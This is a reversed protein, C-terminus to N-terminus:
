HLLDATWTQWLGCKSLVLRRAVQQVNYVEYPGLRVADEGFAHATMYNRLYSCAHIADPLSLKIDRVNQADSHSSKQFRKPQIEVETNEGRAIWDITQNSGIGIEKLRSSIENFVDPNWEFTKKDLWRPKEKSSSIALGLEEIASFALNIAASTRVHSAFLSSHKDFVQGVRPHTSWPTISETRYSFALKHVAYIISPSLWASAAISVSVPREPKYSFQEFFGSKQFLNKFVTNRELTDDPIEFAGVSQTEEEPFGELVVDAARILQVVNNAKDSKADVVMLQGPEASDLTFDINYKERSISRVLYGYSSFMFRESPDSIFQVNWGVNQCISKILKVQDPTFVCFTCFSAM